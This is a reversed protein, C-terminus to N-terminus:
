DDQDAPDTAQRVYGRTLCDAVLADVFRGLEASGEAIPAVRWRLQEVTVGNTVWAGGGNLYNHLLPMLRDMANAFRSEATTRAEFEDWLARFEAAQEGPLLGFLRDAALQERRPKDLYGGADFAFTDGADIEIIDHVLLLRVVRNVDVAEAAYESLVMAMMALHWSHEASNEVRTGNLLPARRQISKLKDIELLFEFQGSLRKDEILTKM